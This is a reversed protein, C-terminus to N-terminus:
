PLSSGFKEERGHKSRAGSRHDNRTEIWNRGCHRHNHEDAACRVSMRTSFPILYQDPEKNFFGTM